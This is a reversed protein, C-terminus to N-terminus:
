PLSRAAPRWSGAAVDGVAPMPQDLLTLNLVETWIKTCVGTVEPPCAPSFTGLDRLDAPVDIEPAGKMDAPM